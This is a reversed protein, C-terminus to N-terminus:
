LRRRSHRERSDIPGCLVPFALIVPAVALSRPRCDVAGLERWRANPQKAAESLLTLKGLQSFNVCAMSLM